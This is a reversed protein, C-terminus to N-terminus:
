CLIGKVFEVKLPLRAFALIQQDFNDLLVILWCTVIYLVDLLRACCNPSFSQLSTCNVNPAGGHGDIEVEIPRLTHEDGISEAIIQRDRLKRMSGNRMDVEVALAFASPSGLPRVVVTIEMGAHHMDIREDFDIVVIDSARAM